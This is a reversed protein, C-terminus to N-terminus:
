ATAAVSTEVCQRAALTQRADVAFISLILVAVFGGYFDLMRFKNVGGVSRTSFPCRGM